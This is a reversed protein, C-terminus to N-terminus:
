EAVSAYRRLGFAEELQELRLAGVVGRHPEGPSFLAITPISMINYTQSRRPNADVDVKVVDVADAYKAALKELEPAVIRCPGCWSAWFDVVVPRSNHLVLAEFTEDTAHKIKAM